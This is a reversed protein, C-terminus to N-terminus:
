RCHYSDSGIHNCSGFHCYSFCRSIFYVMCPMQVCMIDHSSFCSISYNFNYSCAVTFAWTQIWNKRETKQKSLINLKHTLDNRFSCDSDVHLDRSNSIFKFRTLKVQLSLPLHSWKAMRRQSPPENWYVCHDTTAFPSFM